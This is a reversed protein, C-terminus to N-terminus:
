GSATWTTPWEPVADRMDSLVKVLQDYDGWGNAPNMARFRAPDATLGRIIHDLMAAGEPGSKGDLLRWWSRRGMNGDGKAWFPAATDEVLEGLTAEIMRNCNHTYNWSGDCHGRDDYLDIDWSM